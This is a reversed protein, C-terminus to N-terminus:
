ADKRLRRRGLRDRLALGGATEDYEVPGRVKLSRQWQVGSRWTVTKPIGRAHETWRGDMSRVRTAASGAHVFAPPFDVEIRDHSTAISMRWLADPGQPIMTLALQVLVGSARYGVVYGIPPVVRAYM